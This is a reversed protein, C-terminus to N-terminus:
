SNGMNPFFKASAEDLRNQAETMVIIAARQYAEAIAKDEPKCPLTCWASVEIKERAFETSAGVSVSLGVSAVPGELYEELLIPEERTDSGVTVPPQGKEKTTATVRYGVKGAKLLDPM